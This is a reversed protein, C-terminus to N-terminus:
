GMRSVVVVVGRNVVKGDVVRPDLKARLGWTELNSETQDSDPVSRLFAREHDVDEVGSGSADGKGKGKSTAKATDEAFRESRRERLWEIRDLDRVIVSNHDSPHTALNSDVSNPPHNANSQPTSTPGSTEQKSKKWFRLSSSPSSSAADL